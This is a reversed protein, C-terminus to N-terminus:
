GGKKSSRREKSKARQKRFRQLCYRLEVSRILLLPLFTVVVVLAVMDRVRSGSSLSLVKKKANAGAKAGTPLALLLAERLNGPAKM